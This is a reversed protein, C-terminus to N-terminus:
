QRFFVHAILNLSNINCKGDLALATVVDTHEIVPTVALSNLKVFNFSNDWQGCMVVCSGDPSLSYKNQDLQFSMEPSSLLDIRKVNKPKPAGPLTAPPTELQLPGKKQKVSHETKTLVGDQFLIWLRGQYSRLFVIPPQPVLPQYNPHFNWARIAFMEKLSMKNGSGALPRETLEMLSMRKPHPTTMLQSPTQGFNNIQDLIAKRDV